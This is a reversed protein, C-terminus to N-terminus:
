DSASYNGKKREQRLPILRKALINITGGSKQVIGEVVLLPELRAIRRYREYVGPRVVVNILGHEDELTLFLHGKATAPKQRCVVYGATCVSTNSLLGEIERSSLIGDNSNRLLQMPHYRCSLGLVQYDSTMQETASTAPLLVRESPLELPLTHPRRQALLGLDWLLQRKPKKLWDFAGILILNEMAERELGTRFYFDELRQYPCKERGRIIKTWAIEGVGKVYKFGLRIREDEITCRDKSRNIDVPLVQIGHRQADNVIVDPSYFGMPQNNLLACYFEVPYRVKLYASEYCTQAFAAAHSKCFGFSAFAALQRFIKSSLDDKIGRKRAGATFTQSLKEMENKSRQKGMARRLQEAEAPTFGAIEVAIRLVQEQFLIVGMTEELIPQLRPHLYTVKELGQRRRLYPHVMNGQLPGPRVIAVEIILDELSRPKSKPLMQMQARSEVQFVGITDARCIMDYVEHDDLPIKDLNLDISRHRRILERAEQILSLMRLGLLDIKILGVDEIDDKNWQTVVRGQAAAPELPVIDVLPCSSVLMGGVHISLHRPFDAVQECLTLFTQWPISEISYESIKLMEERLNTASYIDLSKALRDISHQPMDLSKGVDRVAKRAQFTVVNCVMATHEQGYKRYVYQILEERHNTSIDIDIDPTGKMEENLFREFLLNHRLPDVRTIGLLYAVISNAASGRGQAPIGNQKAHHMIDWVILFYGSLNMRQIVGLEHDLQDIVRRTVPDYREEAGQRCLKRLYSISTKGPPVPFNPFRYEELNLDVHCREAILLSNSVAEPYRSFLLAMEDASKLYYEHNPRRLGSSKDLTTRNKICVLVDQLRYGEPAAYHVNNTAVYGISTQRAINVLRDCLRAEGQLLHRQLEIWFNDRGFLASYRQAARSAENQKNQLLYTAVEGKRCGSLCILGKSHNSLTEWDLSAGTKKSHSILRCLNSYGTKDEALLTIHYGGDLAMEVGIIPKIGQERAAKHFRVAGYLGDH